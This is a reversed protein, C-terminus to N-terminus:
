DVPHLLVADYVQSVKKEKLLKFRHLASIDLMQVFQLVPQQLLEPRFSAFSAYIPVGRGLPCERIAVGSGATLRPSKGAGVGIYARTMPHCHVNRFRLEITRGEV